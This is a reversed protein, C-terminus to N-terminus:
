EKQLGYCVRRSRALHCIHKSKKVAKLIDFVPVQVRCDRDGRRHVNLTCLIKAPKLKKTVLFEIICRQKVSPFVLDPATKYSDQQPM